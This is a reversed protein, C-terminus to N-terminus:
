DERWAFRGAASIWTSYVGGGWVTARTGNLEDHCTTPARRSGCAEIRPLMRQPLGARQEAVNSPHSIAGRSDGLKGVMPLLQQELTRSVGGLLYHTDASTPQRFFLRYRWTIM